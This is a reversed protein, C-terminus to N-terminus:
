VGLEQKTKESEHLVKLLPIKSLHLRVNRERVNTLPSCKEHKMGTRGRQNSNGSVGRVGLNDGAM